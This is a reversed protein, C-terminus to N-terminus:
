GRGLLAEIKTILTERARASLFTKPLRMLRTAHPSQRRVTDRDPGAGLYAAIDAMMARDFAWLTEGRYELQYFAERPWDVEHTRNLGCGLCSLRGAWSQKTGAKGDALLVPLPQDGYLSEFRAGAGCKPCALVLKPAIGKNYYRETM